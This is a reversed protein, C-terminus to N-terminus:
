ESLKAIRGDGSIERIGASDCSSRIGSNGSFEITNAIIQTCGDTVASNGTFLLNGTQFYIAGQLVSSANGNIKVSEQTLDDDGFFLLGSYDGTTPAALNMTLNGNLTVDGGIVFTVGTGTLSTNGTNTFAGDVIYLGPDFHVNGKVTLSCYRVYKMGSIHNLTPTVTTNQVTGSDVCATTATPVDIDEYPDDLPDHGEQVEECEALNLSNSGGTSQYAGTAYICDAAFTAGQMHFSSNSSSNSAAVCNEFSASASGKAYLANNASPSLALACVTAGPVGRAVARGQLGVAGGHFFQSFVRGVTETLRVEVM